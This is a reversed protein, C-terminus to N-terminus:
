QVSSLDFVQPYRHVLSQLPILLHGSYLAFYVTYGQPNMPSRQREREFGLQNLRQHYWVKIVGQDNIHVYVLSSAEFQLNSVIRANSKNIAIDRKYWCVINICMQRLQSQLQAPM